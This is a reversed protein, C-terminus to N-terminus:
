NAQAQTTLGFMDSPKMSFNENFLLVTLVIFAVFGFVTLLQTMSTKQIPQKDKPECVEGPCRQPKEKYFLGYFKCGLCIGFAAEFFLFILCTFCIIGTIPSFGNMVVILIFFTSALGVGIQWAFKKQKAGVYEPTQNRVFLRGLVLTPAYHPSVFVRILFDALFITVAYKILLFNETLIVTMVAIIMLLFLLGAAARVERENLVPFDFGEVNEGFRFVKSM